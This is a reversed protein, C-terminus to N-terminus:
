KYIWELDMSVKLQGDPTALVVQKWDKYDKLNFLFYGLNDNSTVGDEDFVELFIQQDLPKLEVPIGKAFAVPQAFKCENVTESKYIENENWAIKVYIDPDSAFPAYADWDEGSKDYRPFADLRLSTLNVAVLTKNKNARSNEKVGTTDKSNKCSVILILTTWLLYKM